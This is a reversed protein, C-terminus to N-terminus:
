LGVQALRSLFKEPPMFDIIRAQAKEQGQADFLLVGFVTKVREMWPGGRPLLTGASLGLALLPISMGMALSFVAVAGLAADRTQGIYVLAGALASRRLTRGDAGVLGM